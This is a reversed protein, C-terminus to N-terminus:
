WARPQGALRARQTAENLRLLGSHVADGHEGAAFTWGAYRTQENLEAALRGLDGAAVDAQMRGAAALRYAYDDRELVETAASAADHLARVYANLHTKIETMDVSM